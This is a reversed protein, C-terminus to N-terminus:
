GLIEDDANKRNKWKNWAWGIAAPIVLYVIVIGLALENTNM